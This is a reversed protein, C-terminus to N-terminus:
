PQPNGTITFPDSIVFRTPDAADELRIRVDTASDPGFGTVFGVPVDWTLSDPMSPADLLLHGKDKGGVAAGLNIRPASATWRIVHTTGEVWREGAVPALIRMAAAPAPASDLRATGPPAKERSCAGVIVLGFARWIRQAKLM